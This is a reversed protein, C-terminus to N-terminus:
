DGASVVAGTLRGWAGQLNRASGAGEAWPGLPAGDWLCHGQGGQGSGKWVLAFPSLFWLPGLLVPGMVAWTARGRHSRCSGAHAGVQQWWVDQKPAATMPVAARAAQLFALRAAM